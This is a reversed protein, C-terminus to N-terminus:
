PLTPPAQPAQLVPRFSADAPPSVPRILSPQCTACVRLFADLTVLGTRRRDFPECPRVASVNRCFAGLTVFTLWLACLFVVFRQKTSMARPAPPLARPKPQRHSLVRCFTYPVFPMKDLSSCAKPDKHLGVFPRSWRFARYTYFLCSTHLRCDQKLPRGNKEIAHTGILDSRWAVFFAHGRM